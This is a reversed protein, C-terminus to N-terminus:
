FATKLYLRLAAPMVVSELKSKQETSATSPKSNYKRLM